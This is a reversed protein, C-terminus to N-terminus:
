FWFGMTAGLGVSHMTDTMSQTSFVLLDYFAEGGVTFWRVPRYALAAGAQLAFGGLPSGSDGRTVVTNGYGLRFFGCPEVPGAFGVRMGGLVRAWYGTFDGGHLGFSGRIEPELLLPSLEFDYGLGLALAGGGAVADGDVVLLGDLAARATGEAHADVAAFLSAGVAFAALM